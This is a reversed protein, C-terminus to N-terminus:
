PEFRQLINFALHTKQFSNLAREPSYNLKPLYDLQISDGFGDALLSGLSISGDILCDDEEGYIDPAILHIPPTWGHEQLLAALLRNNQINWASNYNYIGLVLNTVGYNYCLEVAEVSQYAEFFSPWYDYSGWSQGANHTSIIFLPLSPLTKLEPKAIVELISELEPM